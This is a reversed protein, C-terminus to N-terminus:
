LSQKIADVVKDIDNVVEENSFRIIRIGFELLIESRDEDYFKQAREKHYGGDVEIGLSSQHCYFDLIFKSIPHQSRMRDPFDRRNKLRLWLLKEAHTMNRRHDRALLKLEKSAGYYMNDPM